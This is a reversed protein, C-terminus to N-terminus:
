EENRVNLNIQDIANKVIDKLEKVLKDSFEDYNVKPSPLCRDFISRIKESRLSSSGRGRYNYAESWLNNNEIKMSEVFLDNIKNSVANSIKNIVDQQQKQNPVKKGNWEIPTNLFNSMLKVLYGSADSVPQLDSYNLANAWNALRNSLAKIQSWHRKTYESSAIGLIGHWKRTFAESSDKVVLFLRGFDYEPVADFSNEEEQIKENCYKIFDQIQEVLYENNSKLDNANPLFYSKTNLHERIQRVVKSNMGQAALSDIAGNQIAFVHDKRDEEDILSAGQVEEFRTYLIALKNHYGRSAVDSIIMKPINLMPQVANDVVAIVDVDQFRKTINIPLSTTIGSDHGIGEGDLIVLKHSEDEGMWNPKFDAKIRIGNVIPALLQGFRRGDNGAFWRMQEILEEKDQTAMKWYIPWGRTDLKYDGKKVVSFRLKITNIILEVIEAFDESDDKLYDEYLLEVVEDISNDEPPFVRKAEDSLLKIKEIIDELENFLLAGDPYQNEITGESLERKINKYQGLFYSLRFRQEPHTLLAKAINKNTDNFIARKFAETICEEILKMAQTQTVFTVIAESNTEACFIFETDCITTRSSSIAPFSIEDPKTGILQRIVTTKGSGTPGQFLMRCYGQEKSPLKIYEERTLWSDKIITEEMQGYFIEVAKKHFIKTAESTASLCWYKEDSLLGNIDKIIKDAEGEDSGLGRRIKKGQKGTKDMIAPHRFEVVFADGQGNKKNASYRAMEFGGSRLKPFIRRKNRCVPVFSSHFVTDNIYNDPIM